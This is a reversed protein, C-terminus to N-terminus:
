PAEMASEGIRHYPEMLFLERRDLICELVVQFEGEPEVRIVNWDIVHSVDHIYRKLISIHSVNHM